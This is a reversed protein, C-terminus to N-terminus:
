VTISLGDGRVGSPKTVGPLGRTMWQLASMTPSSGCNTVMTRSTIDLCSLPAEVICFMAM